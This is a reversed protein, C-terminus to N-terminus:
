DQDIMWKRFEKRDEKSTKLYWAQLQELEESQVKDVSEVPLAVAEVIKEPQAVAQNDIAVYSVAVAAVGGNINYERIEEIYNRGLQVGNSKLEDVVKDVEVGHQDVIKFELDKLGKEASRVSRYTPMLFEVDQDANINFTVIQNKGYVKKRDGSKEIVPEYQFVVQNQGTNLTVVTSAKFAQGSTKPKKMNVALLDVTDKVTLSASIGPMSVLMASMLTIAQIKM